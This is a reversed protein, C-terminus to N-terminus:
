DRKVLPILINLWLRSGHLVYSYGSIIEILYCTRRRSRLLCVSRPTDLVGHATRDRPPPPPPVRSPHGGLQPVGMRVQGPPTGRTPAGQSPYGGTDQGPWPTGQAPVERAPTGWAPAGGASTGGGGRISRALTVGGGGGCTHVSLCLSVIVERRTSRVRDTIFWCPHDCVFQDPHRLVKGTVNIWM